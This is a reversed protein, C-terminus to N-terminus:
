VRPSAMGKCHDDPKDCSNGGPSQPDCPGHPKPDPSSTNGRGWVTDGEKAEVARWGPPLEGPPVFLYGSTEAELADRTICAVNGFTPDQVVYRDGEKRVLAAYHDLTLHMVSPIVFAAGKERYAMQFDLGLKHSLEAVQSLSFGQQTSAVAHIL